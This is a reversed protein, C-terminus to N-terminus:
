HIYFVLLIAPTPGVIALVWDWAVMTGTGDYATHCDRFQAFTEQGLATSHRVGITKLVYQLDSQGTFLHPDSFPIAALWAYRAM